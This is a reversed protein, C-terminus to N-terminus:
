LLPSRDMQYPLRPSPVFIKIEDELTLNISSVPFCARAILLCIMALLGGLALKERIIQGQAVLAVWLTREIEWGM